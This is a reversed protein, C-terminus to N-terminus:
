EINKYFPNQILIGNSAKVEDLFIPLYHSDQNQLKMNWLPRDKASVPNLLIEVMYTLYKYDRARAMRLIDFWRKGEGLFEKEREKMVMLLAEQENGPLDPVPKITYGARKRILALTECAGPIDSTMVQAEAKQLLIDAYRYFIWNPSQDTNPRTATFVGGKANETGAYKWLKSSESGGRYGSGVGRVDFEDKNEKEFIDKTNFSVVYRGDGGWFWSYLSNSQGKLNGRYQLEFISENSNGPNYITMWKDTEILELGSKEFEQAIALVKQYDDERGRWLYVDALLAKFAWSTARGKTQWPIEYGPKCKKKYTELDNIIQDIVQDGPTKNTYFNKSDDAYPELILPVDRFTRVLYFYCLSRVFVAEAVFSESLSPAFTADHQLVSPSFRIVSNARGIAVYVPAWKNLTNSPRIDLRKIMREDNTAASNDTNHNAGFELGNGRLEGWKLFFPMCERLQIYSSTLVQEVEEKTRWFTGSTQVGVPEIDLWSNCGALSLLLFILCYKKMKNYMKM